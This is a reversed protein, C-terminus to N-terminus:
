VDDKQKFIAEIEDEMEVVEFLDDISCNLIKALAIGYGVNPVSFAFGDEDNKSWRTVQSPDVSLKRAIWTKPIRINEEQEKREIFEMVKSRVRIRLKGMGWKLKYTFANDSINDHQKKNIIM